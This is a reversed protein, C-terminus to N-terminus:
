IKTGDGHFIKKAQELQEELSFEWIWQMRSLFSEEIKDLDDGHLEFDYLMGAEKSTTVNKQTRERRVQDFAKFARELDNVDNAENILNALIYSDEICMGAGAGQHPTTAHAADGLLCLRGKYFTNCPPHMFLAWIDPKEMAGVIKQVQPGWEAFEAEMKEKSTTVVWKEEDWTKSSNFAVVNMTKGKQVPFTLIHGHYGLFISSNAAVEEGLMEVAKDMPILGRYAYKGSYVADSAPDDKGLLWPRTKSKIGDCGIVASHQATTGDAFHLVMDGSNDKANSLDVVRKGFRAVSDPVDKVLEDLFAARYVGGRDGGAEMPVDFLADGVKKGPKVFGDKDAKREDGVRITFWSDEKEKWQNGTKTKTFAEHIKPSMLKMARGANPGLYVGAGIEGFHPAAEYITIPIDYRLLTIALTLGSIGGGVIALNYNKKPSDTSAM